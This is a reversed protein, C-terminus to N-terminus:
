SSFQRQQANNMVVKRGWIEKMKRKIIKTKRRRMYFSDLWALVILIDPCDKIDRWYGFEKRTMRNFRKRYVIFREWVKDTESKIRRKYTM